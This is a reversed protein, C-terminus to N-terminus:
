CFFQPKLLLKFFISFASANVVVVLFIFFAMFQFLIFAYHCHVEVQRWLTKKTGLSIYRYFMILLSKRNMLLINLHEKCKLTTKIEKADFFTSQAFDTFSELVWICCCYLFFLMKKKRKFINSFIILTFLAYWM